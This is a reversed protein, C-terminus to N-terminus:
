LIISVIYKLMIITGILGGVCIATFGSIVYIGAKIWENM